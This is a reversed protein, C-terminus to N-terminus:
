SKKKKKVNVRIDVGPAMQQLQELGEKAQKGYVGNPDLDIAKQYAEITGPAFVPVDKDGEKKVTMKYVLSAGLLYWTQPNNPELQAAKQLPEVADGLRNANYM